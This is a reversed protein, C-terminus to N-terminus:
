NLGGLRGLPSSNPEPITIIRIQKKWFDGEEIEGRMM